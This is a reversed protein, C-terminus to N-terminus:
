APDQSDSSQSWEVTGPGGLVIWYRTDPSLVHNSFVFTQTRLISSLDSDFGQVFDIVSSRPVGHDDPSLVVTFDDVDAPNRAQMLLSVEFLTFGYNGTSFSDSLIQEANVVGDSAASLNDGSITAWNGFFRASRM